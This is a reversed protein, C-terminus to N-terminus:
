YFFCWYSVSPSAPESITRHWCLKACDLRTNAHSNQRMESGLLHSQTPQLPVHSATSAM